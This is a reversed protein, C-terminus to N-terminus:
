LYNVNILIRVKEDTCTTGTHMMNADFSVVRNEISSVKTGDEFITYGDNTNIYLIATKPKHSIITPVDIHYEHKRNISHKPLLNAKISIINNVGLKNLFPLLIDFNNDVRGVNMRYFSHTFQFDDKSPDPYDVFPNYIWEIQDGMLYNQIASFDDKSLFDDIIKIRSDINVTQRIGFGKTM